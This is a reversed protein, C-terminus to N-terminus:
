RHDGDGGLEIELMKVLEQRDTKGLSTRPFNPIACCRTPIEIKPYRDRMVALIREAEQTSASTCLILEHGYREDAIPLVAWAAREFALERVREECQEWDVWEGM